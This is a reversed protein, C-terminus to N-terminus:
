ENKEPQPPNDFFFDPAHFTREACYRRHNTQYTM